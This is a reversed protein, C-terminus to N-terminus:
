TIDETMISKWHRNTIPTRGIWFGQSLVVEHQPGELKSFYPEQADTGMQFRGPPCWILVLVIDNSLELILSEETGRVTPIACFGNLILLLDALYALFM